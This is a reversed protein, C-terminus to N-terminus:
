RYDHYENYDDEQRSYQGYPHQNPLPAPRQYKELNPSPAYPLSSGPGSQDYLGLAQSQPQPQQWQAQQIQPSPPPAQRPGLPRQRLQPSATGIVPTAYPSQIREGHLYPNYAPHAQPNPPPHYEVPQRHDVETEYYQAPKPPLPAATRHVASTPRSSPEPRSQQSLPRTPPPTPEYYASQVQPPLPSAPEYYQQPPPAPSPEHFQRSSPRPPAPEYYEEQIYSSRRSSPGRYGNEINASLSAECTHDDKAPPAPIYYEDQNDEPVPPMYFEPQGGVGPSAAAETPIYDDSINHVLPSRPPLSVRRPSAQPSQGMRVDLSMRHAAPSPADSPVPSMPAPSDRMSVQESAHDVPMQLSIRSAPRPPQTPPQPQPSIDRYQINPSPRVRGITSRRDTFGVPATQQSQPRPSPTETYATSSRKAQMRTPTAQPSVDNVTQATTLVPRPSNLRETLQEAKARSIRLPSVPAVTTQVAPSFPAPPITPVAPVIPLAPVSQRRRRRDSARDPMPRVDPIMDGKKGKQSEQANSRGLQAHLFAGCGPRMRLIRLIVENSPQDEEQKKEQKRQKIAGLNKKHLISKTRTAKRSPQRAMINALRMSETKLDDTDWDFFMRAHMLERYKANRLIHDPVGDGDIYLYDKLFSLWKYTVETEKETMPKMDTPMDSLPPMLMGDFISLIEKWLKSIVMESASESLSESLVKLTQDLYDFLPGIAAEIEVDTLPGSPKPSSKITSSNQVLGTRAFVSTMSDVAKNIDYSKPKLLSHLVKRSICQRIYASMRDVIIRTMDNEARKLTRFARGFYFGIEDKEGEVSIRFLIRGQRDLDLWIDHILYDEFTQPDLRLMARGCLDHDGVLDRDWVTASLWIPSETALDFTEEWRPNLTEYVTRTKYVREGYENTIVMYPDSFGNADMAPLNEALVVKVTFLYRTRQVKEPVAPASNKIVEAVKDADMVNYLEDLLKRAAEINNLKVCTQPKILFPEVKKDGAITMKAKVLWYPQKAQPHAPEETEPPFMEHMFLEEIMNCYQDLGKSVTQSLSTMFRANQYPDPWKMNIIVDVTQNFSKFLDLISVSCGHEPNEIKFIDTSVSSTVWEATKTSMVELWRRVHPRFLEEIHDTLRQEPCFAQHMKKLETVQRFLKYIDDTPVDNVTDALIGKSLAGFHIEIDNILLPVTQELVISVVDIAGLLLDPFRKSLKKAEGKIWEILENLPGTVNIADRRFVETSKEKYREVAQIKIGHALDRYYTDLEVNQDRFLEHKHIDELLSVVPDIAEAKIKFVSKFIDYLLRLLSENLGLLLRALYRRDDVTWTSYDWDKTIKAVSALADRIVEADVEEDDFKSKVADLFTVVRYAPTLRWRVACENLLDQSQKSIVKTPINQGEPIKNITDVDHVLCVEVLQKFFAPPDAPIFTFEKMPMDEAQVADSIAHIDFSSKNGQQVSPREAEPVRLVEVPASKALEPNTQIMLLMLQSLTKLESSKWAAYAQQTEFDEPKLFPDMQLNISNICAKIDDIAAKESCIHRIEQVDKQVQSLPIRFIQSVIKVLPMDNVDTSVAPSAAGNVLSTDELPGDDQGGLKAAYMDLKSMLESPVSNVISPTKLTDRIVKVFTGVQGNLQDKWEDATARKKLEGQASTVFMLVLDEVRRNEKVQRQFSPELYVGYFVGITSRLQQDKYIPDRGMAIDQLKTQFVKIFDKPFRTSSRDKSSDKLVESLSAITSQFTSRTPAPAKSPGSSAKTEGEANKIVTRPTILYSLYGVRLAYNYVDETTVHNYRSRRSGGGARSRRGFSRQQPASM